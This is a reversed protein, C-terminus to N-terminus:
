EIFVGGRSFYLNPIIVSFLLKGISEFIENFM